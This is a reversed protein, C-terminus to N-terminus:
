QRKRGQTIRRISDISLGYRDALKEYSDGGQFDCIIHENRERYYARAGTGEGWKRKEEPQPIYINEGVVYKQVERLLQEPLISSANKYKM